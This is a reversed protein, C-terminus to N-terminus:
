WVDCQFVTLVLTYHFSFEWQANPSLERPGMTDSLSWCTYHLASIENVNNVLRVFYKHGSIARSDDDSQVVASPRLTICPRCGFLAMDM